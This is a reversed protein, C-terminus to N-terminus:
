REEAAPWTPSGRVVKRGVCYYSERVNRRERWVQVVVEAPSGGVQVMVSEVSYRQVRGWRAEREQLWEAVMPAVLSEEVMREYEGRGALAMTTRVAEISRERGPSTILPGLVAGIAVLSLTLVTWTAAVQHWWGCDTPRQPASVAGNDAAEGSM